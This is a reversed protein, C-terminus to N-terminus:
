PARHGTLSSLQTLATNSYNVVVLSGAILLLAGCFMITGRMWKRYIAREEGSADRFKQATLGNACHAADDGHEVM